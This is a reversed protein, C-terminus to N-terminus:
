FGFQKLVSLLPGGLTFVKKKSVVENQYMLFNSERYCYLKESIAKGQFVLYHGGQKEQVPGGKKYAMVALLKLGM